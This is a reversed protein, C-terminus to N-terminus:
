YGTILKILTQRQFSIIFNGVVESYINQIATQEENDLGLTLKGMLKELDEVQVTDVRAVEQLESVLPFNASVLKAHDKHSLGDTQSWASGDLFDQLAGYSMYDELVKYTELPYPKGRYFIELTNRLLKLNSRMLKAISYNTSCHHKMMIQEVAFKEETTLSTIPSLMVKTKRVYEATFDLRGGEEMVIALRSNKPTAVADEDPFKMGVDRCRQFRCRQCSKWSKSNLPCASGDIVSVCVFDKHAEGKIARGFFARCSHCVIAQYYYHGKTPRGCAVCPAGREPVQRKKSLDFALDAGIKPSKDKKKSNYDGVTSNNSDSSNSQPSPVFTNQQQQMVEPTAEESKNNDDGLVDKLIDYDDTVDEFRCDADPQYTNLMDPFVEEAVQTLQEDQLLLELPDCDGLAEALVAELELDM